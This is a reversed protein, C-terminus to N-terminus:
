FSSFRILQECVNSFDCGHLAHVYFKRCACALTSPPPLSSSWGSLLMLEPDFLPGELQSTAISGEVRGFFLSTMGFCVIFCLDNMVEFLQMFYTKVRIHGSTPPCKPRQARFVPLMFANWGVSLPLLLEHSSSPFNNPSNLVLTQPLSIQMSPPYKVTLATAPLGTCEWLFNLRDQSM